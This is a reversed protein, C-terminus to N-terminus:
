KAMISNISTIAVKVCRTFSIGVFSPAGANIVLMVKRGVLWVLM